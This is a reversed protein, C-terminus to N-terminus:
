HVACVRGPFPGPGPARDAAGRVLLLGGPPSGAPLAATPRVRRLGAAAAPGGAPPAADRCRRRYGSVASPGDGLLTPSPLPVHRKLSLSNRPAKWRGFAT